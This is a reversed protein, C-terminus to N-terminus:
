FLPSTFAQVIVQDTAALGTDAITVTTGSFTVAGQPARVVNSANRIQVLVFDIPGTLMSAFAVTMSNASDEETSPNVVAVAFQAEGYTQAAVAAATTSATARRMIQAKSM